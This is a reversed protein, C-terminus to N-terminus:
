FVNPNISGIRVGSAAAAETVSPDYGNPLDWLVHVAVLPAVGTYRHVQGADALKEEVTVAAGAQPFVGFRTGSAADGWSPTEVEQRKLRGKIGEVDLGLSALRDELYRYADRDDIRERDAIM